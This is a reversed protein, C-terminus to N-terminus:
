GPFFNKRDHIIKDPSGSTYPNQWPVTIKGFPLITATLPNHGHTSRTKIDISLNRLARGTLNRDENRVLPHISITSSRDVAIEGSKGLVFAPGQDSFAMCDLPLRAASFITSIPSLGNM